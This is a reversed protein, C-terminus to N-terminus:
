NPEVSLAKYECVSTGLSDVLDSVLSVIPIDDCVGRVVVIAALLVVCLSLKAKLIEM